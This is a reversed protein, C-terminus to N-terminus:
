HIVALRKELGCYCNDDVQTLQANNAIATVSVVSSTHVLNPGAIIPVTQLVTTSFPSLTATGDNSQTYTLPPPEEGRPILGNPLGETFAMYAVILAFSKVQIM